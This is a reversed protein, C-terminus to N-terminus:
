GLYIYIEHGRGSRRTEATRTNPTPVGVSKEHAYITLLRELPGEVKGPKWPELHHGEARVPDLSREMIDM